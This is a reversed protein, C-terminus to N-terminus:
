YKMLKLLQKACKRKEQLLLVPSPHVDNQQAFAFLHHLKKPTRWSMAVNKKTKRMKQCSKFSIKTCKKESNEEACKM